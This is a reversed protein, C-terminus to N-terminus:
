YFTKDNINKPLKTFSLNEFKVNFTKIIVPKIQLILIHFLYNKNIM